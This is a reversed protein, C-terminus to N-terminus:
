SRVEPAETDDVPYGKPGTAAAANQRARNALRWLPLAAELLEKDQDMAEVNKRYLTPDLVAGLAHAREIRNLFDPVDVMSIIRAANAILILQDRYEEPTM